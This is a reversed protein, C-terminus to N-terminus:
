TIRALKRKTPQGDHLFVVVWGERGVVVQGGDHRARIVEFQGIVRGFFDEFLAQEIGDHFAM